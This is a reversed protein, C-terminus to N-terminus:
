KLGDIREKLEAIDEKAAKILNKTRKLEKELFNLHKRYDSIREKAFGIQSNLFDREYDIDYM